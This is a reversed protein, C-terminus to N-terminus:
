IEGFITINGIKANTNAYNPKHSDIGVNGIVELKVFRVRIKDFKVIKECGLAQMTVSAVERFSQGDLSVHIKFRTVIHKAEDRTNWGVPRNQRIVVHPYFGLASIDRENGM